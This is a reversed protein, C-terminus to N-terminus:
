SDPGSTRGYYGENLPSIRAEFAEVLAALMSLREGEPTGLEADMLEEIESLIAEYEAVSQITEIHM